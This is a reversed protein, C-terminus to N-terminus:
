KLIRSADDNWRLLFDKMGPKLLIPAIPQIVKELEQKRAMGQQIRLSISPRQSLAVVAKRNTSAGPSFVDIPTDGM